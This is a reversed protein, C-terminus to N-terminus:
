MGAMNSPIGGEFVVGAPCSDTPCFVDGQETVEIIIDGITDSGEIMFRMNADLKLPIPNGDSGEPGEMSGSDIVTGDADHVEYNGVINGDGDIDMEWVGSDVNGDDNPISFTGAFHDSGDDIKPMGTFEIGAPCGDTACSVTGDSSVQLTVEQTVPGITVEIVFQGNVDIAIPQNDGSGDPPGLLTKPDLLSGNESVAYAGTVNGDADVDVHWSGEIDLTTATFTGEYQNPEGGTQDDPKPGGDFTTNLPCGDDACIIERTDADMKLTIIELTGDDEDGIQFKFHGDQDIMLPEPMDGNDPDPPGMIDGSDIVTGNEMATFTGMVNGDDDVEISWEGEIGDALMFTGTYEGTMGIMGNGATDSPGMMTMLRRGSTDYYGVDPLGGPLLLSVTHLDDMHDMKSVWYFRVVAETNETVAPMPLMASFNFLEAQEGEFAWPGPNVENPELKDSTAINTNFDAGCSDDTIGTCDFVAVVSRYGEHYGLIDWEFYANQGAPLMPAMGLEFLIPPMRRAAQERITENLLPDDGGGNGGGDDVDFYATVNQDMNMPITCSLDMDCVADSWGGFVSGADPMATLVIDDDVPIDADCNTGCNIIDANPHNEVVGSGMGDIDVSLHRTDTTGTGTNPEVDSFIAKVGLPVLLEIECQEEEGACVGEWGVFFMDTDPTATLHVMEGAPFDAECVGPDSDSDMCDIPGDSVVFGPGEVDIMLHHQDAMMAPGDPGTLDNTEEPTVSDIFLVTSHLPDTTSEKDGLEVLVVWDSEDDWQDLVSGEITISGDTEDYNIVGSPDTGSEYTALAGDDGELIIRVDNMPPATDAAGRIQATIITPDGPAALSTQPLLLGTMMVPAMFMGFVRGTRSLPSLTIAKRKINFM